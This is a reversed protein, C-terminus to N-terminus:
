FFHTAGKGGAAGFVCNARENQLARQLEAIMELHRQEVQRIYDRIVAESAEVTIVAYFVEGNSRGGLTRWAHLCNGKPLM